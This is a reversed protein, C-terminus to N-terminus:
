EQESSYLIGNFVIDCNRQENQPHVNPHEVNLAKKLLAATSVTVQTEKPDTDPIPVAPEHSVWAEDKGALTLHKGFNCSYMNQM